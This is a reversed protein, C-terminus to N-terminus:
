ASQKNHGGTHFTEFSRTSTGTHLPLKGLRRLHKVNQEVIKEELEAKGSIMKWEEKNTDPNVMPAYIM